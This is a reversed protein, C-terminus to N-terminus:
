QLLRLALFRYSGAGGMQLLFTAHNVFTLASEGAAVRPPPPPRDPDNVWKPWPQKRRTLAWRIVQRLSREAVHGPNHFRRGDFHDTLARAGPVGAGRDEEGV